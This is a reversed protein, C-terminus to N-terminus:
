PHPARDEADGRGTQQGVEKEDTPQVADRTCLALLNPSSDLLEAKDRLMKEIELATETPASGPLGQTLTEGIGLGVLRQVKLGAVFLARRLESSSFCSYIVNGNEPKAPPTTGTTVIQQVTPPTVEFGQGALQFLLGYKSSAEVVVVDTAIRGLESLVREAEERPHVYLLSGLCVCANYSSSPIEKLDAFTGCTLSRIAGGIGEEEAQRLGADLAAASPDFLSVQYGCSALHRTRRGTWSPVDLITAHPPLHQALFGSLIPKAPDTKSGLADELSCLAEDQAACLCWGVANKDMRNKAAHHTIEQLDALLRTQEASLDADSAPMGTAM